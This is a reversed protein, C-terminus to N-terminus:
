IKLYFSLSINRSDNDDFIVFVFFSDLFNNLLFSDVFSFAYTRICIKVSTSEFLERNKLKGQKKRFLIGCLVRSFVIGVACRRSGVEITLDTSFLM